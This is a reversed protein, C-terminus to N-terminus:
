RAAGRIANRACMAQMGVNLHSWRRRLSRESKGTARAALKYIEDLSKGRLSKAVDDGCDLSSHGSASKVKVYHTIDATSGGVRREIKQRKAM